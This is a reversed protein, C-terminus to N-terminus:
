FLTHANNKSFASKVVLMKTEFSVFIWAQFFNFLMVTQTLVKLTRLENREISHVYFCCSCSQFIHMLINTHFELYQEKSIKYATSFIIIQFSVKRYFLSCVKEFSFSNFWKVHLTRNTSKQETREEDRSTQVRFTWNRKEQTYM